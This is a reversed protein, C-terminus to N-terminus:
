DEDEDAESAAEADPIAEACWELTDVYDIAEPDDDDYVENELTIVVAHYDKKRGNWVESNGAEAKSAAYYERAEAETDFTAMVDEAGIEGAIRVVEEYVSQAKQGYPFPDNVLAWYKRVVFKNM